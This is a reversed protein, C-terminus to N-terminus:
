GLEPLKGLALCEDAASSALKHGRSGAHVEQNLFGTAIRDEEALFEADWPLRSRL